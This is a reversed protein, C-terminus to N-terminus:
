PSVDLSVHVLFLALHERLSLLQETLSPKLLHALLRLLYLLPLRRRGSAPLASPRSGDKNASSELAAVSQDRRGIWGQGVGLLYRCAILSTFAIARVAASTSMSPMISQPTSVTKPRGPSPMLPMMSASLCLCSRTRKMWTRWSSAAAKM